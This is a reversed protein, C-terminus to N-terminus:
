LFAINYLDWVVNDILYWDGDQQGRVLPRGDKTEYIARCKVNKTLISKNPAQAEVEVLINSIAPSEDDVSIIAYRLITNEELCYKMERILVGQTKGSRKTSYLQTTTLAHRKAMYNQFFMDVAQEPTGEGITIKMADIVRPKWNDITEHTKQIQKRMDLIDEWSKNKSAAEDQRAKESLVSQAFDAMAFLAALSKSAVYINGYGLDKGHFIGNRYPLRIEDSTVKKRTASFIKSLRKLGTEHGVISDWSTLNADQAFFGKNTKRLEDLIGDIEMLFLPTCSYYRGANYDEYAASLIHYRKAFVGISKLKRMQWEINEKKSYYSVLLEEAEEIKDDGALKICSDMLKSNLSEYAIWGHKGMFENFRDAAGIVKDFDLKFKRLQEEIDKTDVGMTRGLGTAKCLVIFSEMGQLDSKLKAATPNDAIKNGM